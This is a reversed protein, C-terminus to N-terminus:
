FGDAWNRLQGAADRMGQRYEREEPDSYLDALARMRDAADVLIRREGDSVDRLIKRQRPPTVAGPAMEQGKM